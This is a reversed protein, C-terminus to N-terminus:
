KTAAQPFLGPELKDQASSAPTVMPAGLDATLQFGGEKAPMLGAGQGLVLAPPKTQLNNPTRDPGSGGGCATLVLAACLAILLKM